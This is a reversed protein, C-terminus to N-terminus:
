KLINSIKVCYVNFIIFDSGSSSGGDDSDTSRIEAM